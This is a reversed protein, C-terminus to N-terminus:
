QANRLHLLPEFYKMYAADAEPSDPEFELVEVPKNYEWLGLQGKVKEPVIIKIDEFIWAYLEQDKLEKWDSEKMGAAKLHKKQLPVIDVLEGVVLARGSILGPYKKANSCIVVPGRYDRKWSRVEITKEGMWFKMAWFTDLSLAKM